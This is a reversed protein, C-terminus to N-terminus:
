ICAHAPPAHDHDSVSHLLGPACWGSTRGNQTLFSSPMDDAEAGVNLLMAEITDQFEFAQTEAVLDAPDSQWQLQPGLGEFPTGLKFDSELQHAKCVGAGEYILCDGIYAAAGESQGLGQAAHTQLQLLEKCDM